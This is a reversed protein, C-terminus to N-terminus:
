SRGLSHTVRNSFIDLCADAPEKSDCHIGHTKISHAVGQGVSEGEKGKRVVICIM